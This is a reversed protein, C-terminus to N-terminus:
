VADSIILSSPNKSNTDNDIVLRKQCHINVYHFPNPALRTRQEFGAIVYPINSRTLPIQTFLNSPFGRLEPCANRMPARELVRAVM